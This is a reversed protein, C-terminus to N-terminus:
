SPGKYAARVCPDDHAIILGGQEAEPPLLAALYLGLVEGGVENDLEPDHGFVEVPVPVLAMGALDHGLHLPLDKM